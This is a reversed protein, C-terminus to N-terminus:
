ATGLENVNGQTQTFIDCLDPMSCGGAGFVWQRYDDIGDRVTGLEFAVPQHEQVRRAEIIGV